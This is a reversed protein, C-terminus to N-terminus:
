GITGTCIATALNTTPECFLVVLLQGDVPTQFLIQVTGTDQSLADSDVLFPQATGMPIAYRQSSPAAGALAPVAVLAIVLALSGLATKHSM